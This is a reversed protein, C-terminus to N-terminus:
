SANADDSQRELDVRHATPKFRRELAAKLTVRFEYPIQGWEDKLAMQGEEAAAELQTEYYRLRETALTRTHKIDSPAVRGIVNADTETTVLEAATPEPTPEAEVIVGRDPTVYAHRGEEEFAEDMRAASQMVNLPMSRALRRKATKEAMAPFGIEPDNWPSQDRRAGPSKSKVALIDVISLVKIVPPRDNAAAKAWAGIIRGKAGLDLKHHLTGAGLDYDFDDGERVVEGTVTLGSRAALTNYGKYGIVLQVQNKFPILFAQGTTGDVELGLCAASMAANFLSQRNCQILIPMRECSVIISRILREPVLSVGPVALVQAFKQKLPTFQSELVTLDNSM